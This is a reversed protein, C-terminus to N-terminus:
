EDNEPNDNENESEADGDSDDDSETEVTIEEPRYVPNEGSFDIIGMDKGEGDLKAIIETLFSLKYSLESEDKVNAMMKGNNLMLTINDTDKINVESIRGSLSSDSIESLIKKVLILKNNDENKAAKLKKDGDITVSVGTIEPYEGNEVDMEELVTCNEDILIFRGDAYPIIAAPNNEVIVISIGNSFVRKIKASKVYREDTLKGTVESLKISFTNMGVYVGSVKTIYEEDLHRNGEINIYKIKFYPTFAVIVICAIFLVTFIVPTRRMGSRRKVGSYSNKKRMKM